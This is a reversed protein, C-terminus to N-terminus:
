VRDIFLKITDAVRKNMLEAYATASKKTRFRRSNVYWEVKKGYIYMPNRFADFNTWKREEERVVKAPRIIFVNPRQGYTDTTLLLNKNADFIEFRVFDIDNLMINLLEDINFSANLLINENYKRFTLVGINRKKNLTDM